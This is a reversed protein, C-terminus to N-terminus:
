SPLTIFSIDSITQELISNLSVQINRSLQREVWDLFNADIAITAQTGDVALLASQVIMTFTAQPLSHELETLVQVWAKQLEESTSHAEYLPQIRKELSSSQFPNKDSSSNRSPKQTLDSDDTFVVSDVIEELFGEEQPPSDNEPMEFLSAQQSRFSGAKYFKVRHYKGVKVFEFDELFGRAVLEEFAPTMKNKLRSPYPSKKLFTM